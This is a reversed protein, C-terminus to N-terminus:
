AVYSRLHQLQFVVVLDVHEQLLLATRVLVLGGLSDRQMDAVGRALPRGEFHLHVGLELLDELGERLLLAHRHAGHVEEVVADAQLLVARRLHVLHLVAVLDVHGHLLCASCPESHSVSPVQPM